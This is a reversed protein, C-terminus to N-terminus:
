RGDGRAGLAKRAEARALIARIQDRVVKLEAYDERAWRGVLLSWEGDDRITYVSRKRM